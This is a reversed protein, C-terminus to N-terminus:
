QMTRWLPANYTFRITKNAGISLKPNVFIFLDWYADSLHNAYTFMAAKKQTKLQCVVKSVFRIDDTVEM